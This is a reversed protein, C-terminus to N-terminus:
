MLHETFEGDQSLEISAPNTPGEDATSPGATITYALPDGDTISFSYDVQNFYRGDLDGDAFGLQTLTTIGSYDYSWGRESHLARIATRISGAMARGESWKAADSRGRMYPVAVASLISVIFLVVMLEILSFGEASKRRKSNM